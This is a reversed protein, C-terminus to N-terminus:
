RLSARFERDLQSEVKPVISGQRFTGGPELVPLEQGTRIARATDTMIRLRESLSMWKAEEPYQVSLEKLVWARAQRQGMNQDKAQQELRDMAARIQQGRISRPNPAVSGHVEVLGNGPVKDIEHLLASRFERAQRLIEPEANVRYLPMGAHRIAGKGLSIGDAVDAQRPDAFSGADTILPPLGPIFKFFAAWRPDMTVYQLDSGEAEPTYYGKLGLLRELTGQKDADPGSLFHAFAAPARINSSRSDRNNPDDWWPQMTFTDFNMATEGIATAFPPASRLIDRGGAAAADVLSAGAQRFEGQGLNTVGNSLEHVFDSQLASLLPSYYSSSGTSLV